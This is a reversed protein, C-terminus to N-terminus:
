NLRTWCHAAQKSSCIFLKLFPRQSRKTVWQVAIGMYWAHFKPITGINELESKWPVGSRRQFCCVKFQDPGWFIWSTKLSDIKNATEPFSMKFGNSQLSRSIVVSPDRPRKEKWLCHKQQFYSVLFGYLTRIGCSASRVTLKSCKLGHTHNHGLCTESMRVSLNACFYSIASQVHVLVTGRLATRCCHEPFM